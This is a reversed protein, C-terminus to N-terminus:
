LLIIDVLAGAELASSNESQIVLAQARALSSTHASDTETFPRVGTAGTEATEFSARLFHRRPGNAPLPAALPFRLHAGEPNATRQWHKLAPLVFVTATVLASVPNGPLGFVLTKGRTGFLLPKGPRMNIRWFDIEVGLDKLVDQVIDHDGVSAGGTTVVIDAELAQDLKARLASFDDRVIGLDAVMTAHASLLPILGFGNSAVIQSAALPSGPPVLEDGTSLISITPRKWVSLRAQNAAAALTLAYPTLTFGAPLLEQGIQFDHGRRRVSQGSKPLSKFSIADGEVIADEQMVVCDAGAPMPAGTFIRVADGPGIEGSFGSGAASIGQLHVASSRGNEAIKEFDASRVAYGDMASADFPPQDHAAVLPAALVRGNADPLPVWEAQPMPVRAYIRRLAEEVPLLSM